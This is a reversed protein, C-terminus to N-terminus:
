RKLKATLGVGSPVALGFAHTERDVDGLTAGGQVRVARTVPDVFVAKMDSLDIVIGDDCLARGAVNHGGGRVAILVNNARAFRVAQVVDATGACRVILGPHKQVSANWIGRDGEYDPADPRSRYQRYRESHSNGAIDIRCDFRWKSGEIFTRHNKGGRGRTPTWSPINLDYGAFTASVECLRDDFLRVFLRADAQSAPQVARVHAYSGRSGM